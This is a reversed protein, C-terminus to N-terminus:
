RKRTRSQRGALWEDVDALERTSRDGATVYGARAEGALALAQKRDGPGNAMWLTRALAFAVDALEAPDGPSARRIALAREYLAIAEAHRGLERLVNATSLLHYGRIPHDAPLQSEGIALARECYPLARAPEGRRKFLDGLNNAAMAVMLHDPGYAEEWIALAREFRMQAEDLRDLALLVTGLNASARAASPHDAGYLREVIALEREYQAIAEDNRGQDSLANGLNTHLSAASADEPLSAEARLALAREFYAQAEPFARKSWLVVGIQSLLRSRLHPDDGARRVMAEVVDGTQLAEDPRALEYGIVYILEIGARAVLADDRTDAGRAMARELTPESAASDGNYSQLTGLWYQAWAQVPPWGLRDADAALETAAALGDQYKGTAWLASVHDLRAQLREVEARREADEPPPYAQLLAETDACAAIGPLAAVAQVAHDVLEGDAGAAFIETLARTEALRRDLCRMRLDLLEESQTGEVRTARCAEIRM